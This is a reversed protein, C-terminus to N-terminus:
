IDSSLWVIAFYDALLFDFSPNKMVLLLPPDSDSTTGKIITIVCPFIAHAM